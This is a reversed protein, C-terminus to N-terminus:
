RGFGRALDGHTAGCLFGSSRTYRHMHHSGLHNDSVRAETWEGEVRVLLVVAYRDIPRGSLHVLVRASASLSIEIM